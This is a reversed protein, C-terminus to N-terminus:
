KAMKILMIYLWWDCTENVDNIFRNVPLPEMEDFAKCFFSSHGFLYSLFDSVQRLRHLPHSFSRSGNCRSMLPTLHGHLSWAVNVSSRAMSPLQGASQLTQVMRSTVAALTRHCM